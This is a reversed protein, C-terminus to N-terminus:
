RQSIAFVLVVHWRPIRVPGDEGAAQRRCEARAFAGIQQRCEVANALLVGVCLHLPERADKRGAAVRTEIKPVGISRTEVARTEVARTEVTRTGVTRTGVTRTEITRTEITRTEAVRADVEIERLGGAPLAAVCVWVAM